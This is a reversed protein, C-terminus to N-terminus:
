VFIITIIQGVVVSPPVFSASLDSDPKRVHTVFVNTFFIRNQKEVPPFFDNAGDQEANHGCCKNDASKEVGESIVSYTHQM